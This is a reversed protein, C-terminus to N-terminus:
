LTYAKQHDMQSTTGTCIAHHIHLFISVLPKDVKLTETAIWTMKCALARQVAFGLYRAGRPNINLEMYPTIWSVFLLWIRNLVRTVFVINHWLPLFLLEAFSFYYWKRTCTSNYCSHRDCYRRDWLQQASPYGFVGSATGGGTMISLGWIAVLNRNIGLYLM